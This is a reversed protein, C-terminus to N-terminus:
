KKAVLHLILDVQDKNKVAGLLASYPEIGYDSTKVALEGDGTVQGDASAKVTVGLSVPHTVGHLTLSGEVRLREGDAKVSSSVFHITPFKKVDLQGDDMMNEAIKKRDSDGPGGELGLKVRDEPADVSLTATQVTVEVRSTEPHAPDYAIEGKLDTARIAHDHALASAAGAKRTRCYLASQKPDIAFRPADAGTVWVSLAGALALFMSGGDSSAVSYGMMSATAKARRIPYM